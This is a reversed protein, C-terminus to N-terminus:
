SSVYIKIFLFLDSLLSCCTARMFHEEGPFINKYIFLMRYKQRQIKPVKEVWRYLIANYM